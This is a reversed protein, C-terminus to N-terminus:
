NEIAWFYYLGCACCNVKFQVTTWGKTYDKFASYADDWTSYYGHENDGDGAVHHTGGEVCWYSLDSTTTESQKNSNTNQTTSLNSETTTTEESVNSNISNSQTQKNTNTNNKEVIQTDKQTESDSDNNSINKSVDVTELNDNEEIEENELVIIKFEKELLNGYIDQISVKAYYEGSINSDVSSFDFEYDKLDSLDYASIYQSFDYSSLDTGFPIEINEEITIEPITTDIVEITQELTIKKYYIYIKYNGVALYNKGNENILDSEIIIIDKNIFNYKELDILDEITPEYSEGYEIIVNDEILTIKLDRYNIFKFYCIIILMMIILIISIIFIKKKM